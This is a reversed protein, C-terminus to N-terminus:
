AFFIGLEGIICVERICSDEPIYTTIPCVRRPIAVWPGCFLQSEWRGGLRNSTVMPTLTRLGVSM